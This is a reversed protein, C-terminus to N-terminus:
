KKHEFPYDPADKWMDVTIVRYGNNYAKMVNREAQTLQFDFVEINQEIRKKTVSKPIPIVGLEM